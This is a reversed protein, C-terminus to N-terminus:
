SFGLSSLKPKEQYSAIFDSCIGYCFNLEDNTYNSLEPLVCISNLYTLKKDPYTWIFGNNTLTFDDNQHWFFNSYKYKWLKLFSMEYLAELNKCHLWLKEFDKKYLKEIDDIKYKPEDHGFFYENNIYWVDIEVDYGKDLAEQIYDPSNEKELKKGNINGRHSIYKM